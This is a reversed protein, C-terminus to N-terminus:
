HVRGEKGGPNPPRSTLTVTPKFSASRIAPL